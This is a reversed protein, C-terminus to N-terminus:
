VLLLLDGATAGLAALLPQQVPQIFKVVPSQLAGDPNMKIWVLGRAGAQKADSTLDDLEKRSMGAAGPVRLAKVVGGAAVLQAFAQFEGGRFLVSVDVLEMAFRLDPKDSGYRSMAEDHALRPFPRSLEVGKVRRWVEAVMGEIIPLFDDRDLFSTEIDIQT